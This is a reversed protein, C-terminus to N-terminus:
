KHQKKLQDANAQLADVNAKTDDQLKQKTNKVEDLENKNKDIIKEYNEKMLASKKEYDEELKKREAEPLARYNNSLNEM